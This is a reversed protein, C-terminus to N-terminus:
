SAAQRSCRVRARPTACGTPCSPPRTPWRTVAWVPSRPSAKWPDLALASARGTSRGTFPLWEGLLLAPTPSPRCFAAARARGPRGGLTLRDVRRGRMADIPRGDRRRRPRAQTARWACRWKSRSASCIRAPSPTSRRIGMRGRAGRPARIELPGDALAPRSATGAGCLRRGPKARRQWDAARLRTGERHCRRPRHDPM